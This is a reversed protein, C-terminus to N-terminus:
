RSIIGLHMFLRLSQSCGRGLLLSHPLESSSDRVRFHPSPPAHVDFIGGSKLLPSKSISDPTGLLLNPVSDVIHCPYSGYYSFFAQLKSSVFFWINDLVYPCSPPHYSIRSFTYLVRSCGQCVHLYLTLTYISYYHNLVLSCSVYLCVLFVTRSCFQWSSSRCVVYSVPPTRLAHCHPQALLEIRRSYITTALANVSTMLIGLARYSQTGARVHLIRPITSSRSLVTDKLFPLLYHASVRRQM